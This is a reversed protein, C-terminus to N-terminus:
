TQSWRLLDETTDIDADDADATIDIDDVLGSHARLYERAGQDGTAKGAAALAAEVDFVVPHTGRGHVSGRAVRGPSQAELVRSLAAASIGPQDVLVVAVRGAGLAAAGKVGAQLSASLGQEWDKCVLIQLGFSVTGATLEAQVEEARHGLVLLPVTGAEEAADIARQALTQSNVQLLAKGTGGLRTGAGAALIVTVDLSSM